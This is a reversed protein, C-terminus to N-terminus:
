SEEAATNQTQNQSDNPMNLAQNEVPAVEAPVQPTGQAPTTSPPQQNETPMPHIQEAEMTQYQPMPQTYQQAQMLHFQPQPHGMQHMPYMMQPAHQPYQSFTAPQMIYSTAYPTASAHSANQANSDAAPMSAPVQSNDQGNTMQSPVADSPRDQENTVATQQTTQTNQSPDVTMPAMQPPMAEQEGGVPVPQGLPPMDGNAFAPMMTSMTNFNPAPYPAGTNPQWTMPIFGAAPAQQTHDEKRRKRLPEQDLPRDRDISYYYRHFPRQPPPKELRFDTPVAHDPEADENSQNTLENYLFVSQGRFQSNAAIKEAHGTGCFYHRGSKVRHFVGIFIDYEGEYLTHIQKAQRELSLLRGDTARGPKMVTQCNTCKLRKVHNETGCKKCLRKLKGCYKPRVPQMSMDNMQGVNNQNVVDNGDVNPTELPPNVTPMMYGLTPFNFQPLQNDGGTPPPFVPLPLNVETDTPPLAPLTTPPMSSNIEASGPLHPIVPVNEEGVQSSSVNEGTNDM